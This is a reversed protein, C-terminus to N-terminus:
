SLPKTLSSEMLMLYYKGIIIYQIEVSPENQIRERARSVFSVVHPDNPKLWCERNIHDFLELPSHKLDFEKLKDSISKPLSSSM